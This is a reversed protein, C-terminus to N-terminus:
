VVEVHAVQPFAPPGQQAPLKHLSGPAWHRYSLLEPDLV